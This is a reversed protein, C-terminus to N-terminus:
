EWGGSGAASNYMIRSQSYVELIFSDGDGDLDGEAQAAYWFDREDLNSSAPAIEGPAGAITAYRFRVPGPPFAGLQEWELESTWGVPDVGPIDDPTYDTWDTGNVAAYQGFRGWYAEQRTKIEGLFNVAESVRSRYVYGSFTPIALSALIGVIAVAILLEILTFAARQPHRTM